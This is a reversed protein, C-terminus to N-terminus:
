FHMYIPKTDRPNVLFTNKILNLKRPFVKQYHSIKFSKETVFYDEHCGDSNTTMCFIMNKMVFLCTKLVKNTQCRVTVAAMYTIQIVDLM